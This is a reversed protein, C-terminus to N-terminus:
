FQPTTRPSPPKTSTLTAYGFGAAGRDIRPSAYSSPVLVGSFCM